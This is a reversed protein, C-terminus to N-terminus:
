PLRDDKTVEDVRVLVTDSTSRSFSPLARGPVWVGEDALRDGETRFIEAPPGDARVGGAPELVIVRDVLPLAEAVRHEVIILTTETDQARAIGARILAAGAPDLNATPEDLLLL